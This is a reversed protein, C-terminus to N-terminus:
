ISITFFHKEKHMTVSDHWIISFRSANDNTLQHHTQSM